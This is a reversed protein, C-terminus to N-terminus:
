STNRWKDVFTYVNVKQRHKNEEKREVFGAAMLEKFYKSGNSRDIGFAAQQKAPFVFDHETYLTNNEKGHQYLCSRGDGKSNVRCLIYFYRAGLSLNRFAMHKLMGNYIMDFTDNASVCATYDIKRKKKRGM